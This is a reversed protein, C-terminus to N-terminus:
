FRVMLRTYLYMSLLFCASLPALRTAFRSNFSIVPFKLRLSSIQCFAAALGLIVYPTVTYNRSLTLMSFAAGAVIAALTPTLRALGKTQQLDTRRRLHNFLLFAAFFAGFFLTGGFLGLEAYAQVFSNHSVHGIEDVILGMGIGFLPASKMATFSESWLQLRSQGTGSDMADGMDTMRGSFAVVLVPLGVVGLALTKKWGRKYLSLTGLAALLALFGGRSKTMAFAYFLVGLPAIWGYRLFSRSKDAILGLCLVIGTVLIMALDNPDQFIGTGRLQQITEIEGFEDTGMRRTLSEIGPLVLYGHEVLLALSAEAVIFVVLWMLFNKLRKESDVLGVLLLYYLVIKAFEFGDWRASWLDLHSAHSLVVAVNLGLVCVTIPNRSLSRGTLQNAVRPAAFVLCSLILYLYIPVAALSPVFEAPRIFLTANLLIFLFYAM